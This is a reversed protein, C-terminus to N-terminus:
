DLATILKLVCLDMDFNIKCPNELAPIKYKLSLMVIGAFPFIECISNLLCKGQLIKIRFIKSIDDFRCFESNIYNLGDTHEFTLFPPIVNQDYVDFNNYFNVPTKSYTGNYISGSESSDLNIFGNVNAIQNQNMVYKM